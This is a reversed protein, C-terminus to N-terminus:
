HKLIFETSNMLAWALDITADKSAMKNSSQYDMACQIEERSPYRSLIRLYLEDIRGSFQQTKNMMSKLKWSNMIKDKIHTSNLLHLTQFVSTSNNRDSEYSTDRGPRGFMQLFSSTISGDALTISRQKPSIFTFPEPIASTYEEGKGTIQGIADILVEADMRRLRYHSFGAEDASNEQTPISSRQYTDSSLITRFLHKLDYDHDTLEKQLHTLLEESWPPNDPRIDDPEHIIGQGMLWYWVRNAIARSFWPNEKATLWDAFAIRPDDYAALEVPSGGLPQPVVPKGSKPHLFEKMPDFFVIEEKWESTPKYAVKGFFAEMGLLEDESLDVQELRMGMFLLAVNNFINRPTRERFPRYFNSPPERFDSGSATLLARAFEDYPMNSRVADRVWRHYAQVANPWLNSPFEAKVRLLDCWKLARYDSFEESELLYDILLERKNVKENSLFQRVEQATPLTGAVDLFVRRVFVPDSCVPSVPFGNELQQRLVLQDLRNASRMEEAGCLRAAFCVLLVVRLVRKM